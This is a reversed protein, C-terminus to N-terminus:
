PWQVNGFQATGTTGDQNATVFLGATFPDNMKGAFTQQGRQTWTTGDTSTYATLVNGVKTMKVWLPLTVAGSSNLSTWTSNRYQVRYNGDKTVAVSMYNADAATGQRIMVGAMAGNNTATFSNVKAVITADGTLSNKYVYRFSDSNSWVQAGSGQVTIVGGSETTSGANTTTIDTSQYSPPPTLSFSATVSKNGSMTITTPNTTGSLDGSWGAFSYGSNPTATVTVVTGSAYTGGSPSLTVSGNTASTSLTYQPPSSSGPWQVNSFQATGTTGDQNATVFLGATFPDNMKGVFTQQGRQTWTTGDTSTYATMVNGVKTMKVWLPLTVAGSSNLSTWT